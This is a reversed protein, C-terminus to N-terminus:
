AAVLDEVEPHRRVYARVFPCVPKLGLKRRRLDDLADHVLREGLGRNRLDSQIETHTLAVVGDKPVYDIWGAVRDAIRLEYRSREANDTVVVADM